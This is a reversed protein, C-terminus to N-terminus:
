TSYENRMMTEDNTEEAATRSVNGTSLPGRNPMQGSASSDAFHRKKAVNM